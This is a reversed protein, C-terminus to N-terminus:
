VGGFCSPGLRHPLKDITIPSYRNQNETSLSSDQSNPHHLDRVVHGPEVASLGHAWLALSKRAWVAREEDANLVADGHMDAAKQVATFAAVIIPM